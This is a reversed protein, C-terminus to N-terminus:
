NNGHAGALGCYGYPDLAAAKRVDKLEAEYEGIPAFPATVPATEIKRALRQATKEERAQQKPSWSWRWAMCHDALCYSSAAPTGDRERNSGKTWTVALPCWRKRAEDPTM